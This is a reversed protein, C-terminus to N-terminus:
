HDVLPWGLEVGVPLLAIRVAGRLGEPAPPRPRPREEHDLLVGGPAQVVVDTQLHVADELAPRDGLPRRDSGLDPAQRDVDLVVGELVGVELPHDRLVVVPGPGDDHPVVPAVARRLGLVEPGLELAPEELDLELAV